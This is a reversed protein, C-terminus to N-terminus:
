RPTWFLAFFAEDDQMKIYIGWVFRLKSNQMILLLILLLLLLIALM